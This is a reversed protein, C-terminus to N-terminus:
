NKGNQYRSVRTTGSLPCNFPHPTHVKEAVNRCSHTSCHSCIECVGDKLCHDLLIMVPQVRNSPTSSDTPSSTWRGTRDWRTFSSWTTWWTSARDRGLQQGRTTILTTCVVTHTWAVSGGSWNVSVIMVVIVAVLRQLVSLLLGCWQHWRKFLISFMSQVRCRWFQWKGKFSRPGWRICPKKLGGSNMDWVADWDTWGNKYPERNPHSWCVACLCVSWVVDTVIPRM